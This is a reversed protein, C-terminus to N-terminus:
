GQQAELIEQVMGATAVTVRRCNALHEESMWEYGRSLGSCCTTGFAEKFAEILEGAQESCGKIGLVMVGGTVAGCLCGNKGIGSHFGSAAAELEPGISGLTAKLIALTCCDGGDFHKGALNIVDQRTLEEEM